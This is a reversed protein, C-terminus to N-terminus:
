QGGVIAIASTICVDVANSGTTIRVIVDNGASSSGLPSGSVKSGVTTSALTTSTAPEYVDVTVNSNTGGGKVAPALAHVKVAEDSEVTIRTIEENSLGSAYNIHHSPLGLVGGDRLVFDSSDNGDVAGANDAYDANPVDANNNVETLTTFHSSDNGDLTNADGATDAYDANPVDANNNVETLTTFYSAHNGDLTDADGASDAYNANPVDANSNVWSQTAVDSGSEQLNGTVNVGGSLTLVGTSDEIQYGAMDLVGTMSDGGRRVFEDWSASAANWLRLRENSQDHYLHSAEPSAPEGGAGGTDSEIRDNTLAVLHNLDNIINSNVFNDWADVPQDGAAYSYGDPFESGSSGWTKLNSNYNAM